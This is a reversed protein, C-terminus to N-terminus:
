LYSRNKIKFYLELSDVSINANSRHALIVRAIRGIPRRTLLMKKFGYFKGGWKAVDWISNDWSPTPVAFSDMNKGESQGEDTEVMVFIEGEGSSELNVNISQFAKLNSPYGMNYDPSVIESEIANGCDQYTNESEFMVLKGGVMALTAGTKYGSTAGLSPYIIGNFLIPKSVPTYFYGTFYPANIRRVMPGHWVKGMGDRGDFWVERAVQYKTNVPDLVDYVTNVGFCLKAINDKSYSYIPGIDDISKVDATDITNRTEKSFLNKIKAGIPKIASSLGDLFYIDEAGVFVVGNLFDTVCANNRAGANVSLLALTFGEDLGTPATDNWGGILSYTGSQKFVLLMEKLGGALDNRSFTKLATIAGPTELKSFASDSTQYSYIFDKHIALPGLKRESHYLSNQAGPCGSVVLSNSYSESLEGAPPGMYERFRSSNIFSGGMGPCLYSGRIYTLCYDWWDTSSFCIGENFESIASFPSGYSSLASLGRKAVYATRKYNGQNATTVTYLPNTESAILGDQDYSGVETGMLFTLGCRARNNLNIKDGNSSCQPARYTGLFGTPRTGMLNNTTLYVNSGLKKFVYNEQANDLGHYFPSSPSFGTSSQLYSYYVPQVAIGSLINSTAWSVQEFQYRCNHLLTRKWSTDLLKIHYIARRPRYAPVSQAYLEENASFGKLKQRIVYTDGSVDTGYSFAPELSLTINVPGQDTTPSGLPGGSSKSDFKIKISDSGYYTVTYAINTCDPLFIPWAIPATKNEYSVHGCRLNPTAGSSGIKTGLSKGFEDFHNMFTQIDDPDSIEAYYYGLSYSYLKAKFGFLSVFSGPYHNDATPYYSLSNIEFAYRVPTTIAGLTVGLAHRDQLSAHVYPLWIGTPQVSYSGPTVTTHTAIEKFPAIADGVYLKLGQCETPLSGALTYNITRNSNTPINVGLSYKNCLALGSGGLYFAWLYHTPNYQLRTGADSNCTGSGAGTVSIGSITVSGGTMPLTDFVGFMEKKEEDVYFALCDGQGPLRDIPTDSEYFNFNSDVKVYKSGKRKELSGFNYHMMNQQSQLEGDILETANVMTNLGYTEGYFKVKKSRLKEQIM